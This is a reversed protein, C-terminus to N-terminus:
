AAGKIEEQKRGSGATFYMTLDKLDIADQNLVACAAHSQEAMAANQQTAQDLQAVAANIENIGTSQENTGADIDFVLTSMRHVLEVIETLAGGTERVLSAGKSVTEASTEILDKIEKAATSSRQALGRVESAVVAFGRGSDGARAAEVGANLALLNTQFAIDDIVKIIQSIQASSSQIDDMASITRQVVTNGDTASRTADEMHKNAQAAGESTSRVNTAMEEVAAATQELTAAQTETRRTLDDSSSTIEAVSNQISFAADIVRQITAQLRDNAANFDLRLQEYDPSFKQHIRHTLDGEALAKLGSQLANVVAAQEERARQVSEELERERDIHAQRFVVLAQAMRGLEHDHEAGDIEVDTDGKALTRTTKVLRGLPQTIWRGVVLSTAIAISVSLIAVVPKLAVARDVVDVAQPGTETLRARAANILADYRTELGLGLEDLQTQAISSSRLSLDLLESTQTALEAVNTHLADLMETQEASMPLISVHALTATIADLASVAQTLNEAEGRTEYVRHFEQVNTLATMVEDTKHHILARRTVRADEILRGALTKTDTIQQRTTERLTRSRNTLHEMEEFVTLFESAAAVGQEAQRATERDDGFVSLDQAATTIESINSRVLDADASSPNRAFRLAALRAEFLDESYDNLANTAEAAGRYSHFYTGITDITQFAFVAFVVLVAGVAAYGSAVRGTISIANFM